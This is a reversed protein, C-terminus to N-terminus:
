ALVKKICVLEEALSNKKPKSVQSEEKHHNKPKESKSLFGFLTSKRKFDPPNQKAVLLQIIVILTFLTQALRNLYFYSKM